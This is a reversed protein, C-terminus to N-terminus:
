SGNGGTIQAALFQATQGASISLTNDGTSVVVDAGSLPTGVSLDSVVVTGNSNTIQASTLKGTAIPSVFFPMSNFTLVTGNVTGCPFALKGRVAVTGGALLLIFGNSGGADIQNAVAQMQGHIAAPSLIM